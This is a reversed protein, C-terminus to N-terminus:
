IHILSLRYVEESFEKHSQLRRASLNKRYAKTHIFTYDEKVINRYTKKIHQFDSAYVHVNCNKRKFYDYLLDVRHEYTDFANVIVVKM